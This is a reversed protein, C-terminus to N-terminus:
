DSDSNHKTDRSRLAHLHREGIQDLIKAASKEYDSVTMSKTAAREDLSQCIRQFQGDAAELDRDGRGYEDRWRAVQKADIEQGEYRWGRRSLKRATRRAAHDRASAPAAHPQLGAARYYCEMAAAAGCKVAHLEDPHPPAGPKRKPREFLSPELGRDFNRLATALNAIPIHLREEEVGPLSRIFKLAATLAARAGSRGGDQAEKNLHRAKAERLSLLLAALDEGGIPDKL